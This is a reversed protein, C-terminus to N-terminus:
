VFLKKFEAVHNQLLNITKEVNGSEISDIIKECEKIVDDNITNLHEKNLFMFRICFDTINNMSKELISNKTMKSISRHFERELMVKKVVDKEKRLDEVIKRLNEIEEKTRTKSALEGELNTLTSRFQYISEMKDLPFESVLICKRPIIRVQEEWSLKNLAERIPTRGIKFRDMLETEVVLQGPRLEATIILEKIKEYVNDSDRM